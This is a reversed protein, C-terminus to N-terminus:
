EKGYDGTKNLAMIENKLRNLADQSAHLKIQSPTCPDFLVLEGLLPNIRYIYNMNIIWSRGVVVFVPRESKMQSSIASIFKKRSFWLQQSFGGTLIMRCYNGDSEVYLIDSPRVKLLESGTNQLILEKMKWGIGKAFIFRYTRM